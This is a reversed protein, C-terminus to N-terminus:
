EYVYDVNVQDLDVDDLSFTGPQTVNKEIIGVTLIFQLLEQRDRCYRQLLEM